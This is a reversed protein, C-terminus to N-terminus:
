AQPSDSEEATAAVGTEPLRELPFVLAAVNAEPDIDGLCALVARGSIEEVIRSAEERMLSHFTRRMSAVAEGQGADTLNSEAKTLADEFVVAILNTNVTARARTPGRGTFRVLLQVMRNCIESAYAGALEREAEASGSERIHDSM